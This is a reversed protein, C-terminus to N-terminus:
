VDREREAPIRGLYRAPLADPGLAKRLLSVYTRITKASQENTGEPRLAARLLDGSVPRDRHLVLYCALETVVAREPESKWGDVELPGLVRIEVNTAPTESPPVEVAAVEAVELEGDEGELIEDLLPDYADLELAEIRFSEIVRDSLRTHGSDVPHVRRFRSLTKPPAFTSQTTGNAVWIWPTGQSVRRLAVTPGDYPEAGEQGGHGTDTM